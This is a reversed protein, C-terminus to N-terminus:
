PLCRHHVRRGVSHGLGGWASLRAPLWFVALCLLWVPM